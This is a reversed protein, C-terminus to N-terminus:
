RLRLKTLLLVSDRGSKGSKLERTGPWTRGPCGPQVIAKIRGHIAVDQVALASTPNGRFFWAMMGDGPDIWRNVVPKTGTLLWRWSKAQSVARTETSSSYWSLRPNSPRCVYFPDEVRFFACEKWASIIHLSSTRSLYLTSYMHICM